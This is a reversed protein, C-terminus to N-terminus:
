RVDAQRLLDVIETAVFVRDRRGGSSVLIGLGVLDAIARGATTVSCRVMGAAQKVTIVPTCILHEVLRRSASGERRDKVMERWREQLQELQGVLILTEEASVAVAQCYFTLWGTWDGHTQADLLADFYERRCRLLPGSLGVFPYGEAALILSILMRGVRGNGDRFPHIAEFQAHAIGARLIVNVPQDDSPQHQLVGKVLEEMSAVVREPPPPVYRANEIRYGGIWNQIQRFAGPIDKYSLNGSMLYRHLDRILDLDLAGPSGAIADMGVLLAQFCNDVARAGPSGKGTSQFFLVDELTAHVSEIWSSQLAERLALARTIHPNSAQATLTTLADTANALEERLRDPIEFGLAPPSIVPM